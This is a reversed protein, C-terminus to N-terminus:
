HRARRGLICAPSTHRPCAKTAASRTGAARTDASRTGATRTVTSRSRTAVPRHSGPQTVGAQAVGAPTVRPPTVDASSGCSPSVGPTSIRGHSTRPRSRADYRTEAPRVRPQERVWWVPDSCVSPRRAPRRLDTGLSPSLTSRTSLLEGASIYSAIAIPIMRGPRDRGISTFWAIDTCINSAVDDPSPSATADQPDHRSFQAPTRSRPQAPGVPVPAWPQSRAFETSRSWRASGPGVRGNIAPGM